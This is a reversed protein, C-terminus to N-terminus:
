VTVHYRKPENDVKLNVKIRWSVGHKQSVGHLWQAPANYGALENYVYPDTGIWSGNIITEGDLSAISSPQHFHGCVHYHIRKDGLSHLATLRRTKREIGYYPIGNWSKMGDGHSVAFNWGNINVITSYADPILFEMNTLNKCLAEATKGILYDWNDQPSHMPKKHQHLRRGHNGPLYLVKVQPFHECLERFM